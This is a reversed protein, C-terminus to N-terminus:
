KVGVLIIKKIAFTLKYRNSIKDLYCFTEFDVRVPTQSPLEKTIELEEGSESFISPASKCTFKMVYNGTPEYMGSQGPRTEDTLFVDCDLSIRKKEISELFDVCTDPDISAILYYRTAQNAFTHGTKISSKVVKMAPTSLDGGVKTIFPRGPNAAFKKKEIM